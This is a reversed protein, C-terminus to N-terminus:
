SCRIMVATAGPHANCGVLTGVQTGCATKRVRGATVLLVGAAQAGGLLFSPFNLTRREPGGGVTGVRLDRQQADRRGGKMAAQPATGSPDAKPSIMCAVATGRWDWDFGM